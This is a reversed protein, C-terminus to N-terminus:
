VIVARCAMKVDQLRAVIRQHLVAGTPGAGKRIPARSEAGIPHEDPDHRSGFPVIRGTRGAGAGHPAPKAVASKRLPTSSTVTGAGERGSGFALRSSTRSSFYARFGVARAAHKAGDRDDGQNGLRDAPEMGALREAVEVLIGWDRTRRDRM